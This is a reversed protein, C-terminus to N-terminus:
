GDKKAEQAAKAEQEAQFELFDKEIETLMGQLLNKLEIATQHPLVVATHFETGASGDLKSFIEGFTIRVAPGTTIVVRTAFKAPIRFTPGFDETQKPKEETSDAM